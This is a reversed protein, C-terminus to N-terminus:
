SLLFDPALFSKRTTLLKTTCYINVIAEALDQEASVDETVATEETTSIAHNTTTSQVVDKIRQLSANIIDILSSYRGDDTVPEAIGHLATAVIAAKEAVVVNQDIITSWWGGVSAVLSVFLTLITSLLSMVM